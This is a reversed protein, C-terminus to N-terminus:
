RCRDATVRVAVIRKGLRVLPRVVIGELALSAVVNFIAEATKPIGHGRKVSLLGGSCLDQLLRCFIDSEHPSLVGSDLCVDIVELSLVLNEFFLTLAM